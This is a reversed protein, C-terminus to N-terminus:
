YQIKKIVFVAFFFFLFKKFFIQSKEIMGFLSFCNNFIEKKMSCIFFINPIKEEIKVPNNPNKFLKLGKFIDDLQERVKM